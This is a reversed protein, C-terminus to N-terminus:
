AGMDILMRAVAVRQEEPVHGHLADLLRQHFRDVRAKADALIGAIAGLDVQYTADVSRSYEQQVEIQLVRDLVRSRVTTHAIFYSQPPQELVTRWEALDALGACCGDHWLVEDDSGLAYGGPLGRSREGMTMAITVIAPADVLADLPVSWSGPYRLPELEIGADALAAKWWARWAEPAERGSNHPSPREVTMFDHPPLEVVPILRTIRQM